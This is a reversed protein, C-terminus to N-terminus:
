NVYSAPIHHTWSVEMNKLLKVPKAILLIKLFGHSLGKLFPLHSTDAMIAMWQGAGEGPRCSFKSPGCFGFQVVKAAFKTWWKNMVQVVLTSEQWGARDPSKMKANDAQVSWNRSRPVNWFMPSCCSIDDFERTSRGVGLNTLGM